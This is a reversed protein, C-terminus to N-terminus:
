EKAPKKHDKRKIPPILCKMESPPIKKIDPTEAAKTEPEKAVVPPAVAKTESKTKTKAFQLLSKLDNIYIKDLASDANNKCEDAPEDEESEEDEEEVPEYREIAPLDHLIKQLKSLQM